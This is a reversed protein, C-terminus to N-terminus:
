CDQNKADCMGCRPYTGDTLFGNYKGPVSYGLAGRYAQIDHELQKIKEVVDDGTAPVLYPEIINMINATESLPHYSENNENEQFHELLKKEVEKNDPLPAPPKIPQQEYEKLLLNALGEKHSFLYEELMSATQVQGKYKEQFKRLYGEAQPNAHEYLWRILPLQEKVGVAPLPKARTYAAQWIRFYEESQPHSKENDPIFGFEQLHWKEFEERMKSIQEQMNDEINNQMITM